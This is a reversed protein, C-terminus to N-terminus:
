QNDWLLADAKGVFVLFSLKIRKALSPYSIPRCLIYKGNIKILNNKLNDIHASNIENPHQRFM